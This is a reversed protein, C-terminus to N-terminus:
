PPSSSAARAAIFCHTFPWAPFEMTRWGDNTVSWADTLDHHAFGAAVSTVADERTVANVGLVAILRSGLRALEDRRPECAVFADSARATALLLRQLAPATFHHLFLNSVCLDYQRAPASAAWDLADAREVRARWGLKAYAALTSESVLDVRDLLTLEVQTWCPRLRRAMNLLLTGDGAGLELIRRPQEALKLESVARALIAASRMVWHVRQLDRRARQARPDEAELGDLVEPEVHRIKGSM